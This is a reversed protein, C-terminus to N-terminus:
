GGFGAPPTSCADLVVSGSANSNSCEMVDTDMKHASREEKNVGKM